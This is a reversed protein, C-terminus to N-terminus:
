GIVPCRREELPYDAKRSILEFEPIALEQDIANESVLGIRAGVVRHPFVDLGDDGVRVDENCAVM